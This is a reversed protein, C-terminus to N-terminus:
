QSIYGLSELKETMEKNPSITDAIAMKEKEEIYDFLQRINDNIKEPLERKKFLNEKEKADNQLDYVYVQRPNQNIIIKYNTVCLCVKDSLGYMLNESLIKHEPFTIIGWGLYLSIGDINQPTEWGMIDALTPLLDMLSVHEEVTRGKTVAGLLGPLKIILPVQIVENFLSHGHEFSGHEWFEEGHDSTVVILSSKFLGKDDIWAMFRELEADVAAVEADYLEMIFRKDAEDLEGSRARFEALKEPKFPSKLQGSYGSVFKTKYEPLPDYAIHPDQFHLVMFFPEQGHREIWEIANDVITKARRIFFANSPYYHYTDFGRALGMAPDLFPNNFYGVTRYGHDRFMRAMTPADERMIGLVLRKQDRSNVRIGTQHRSPFQGTFISGISPLTWPSPAIAREFRIGEDSLRDLRPTTNKNYGYCGV